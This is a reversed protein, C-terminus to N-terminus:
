DNDEGLEEEMDELLFKLQEGEFHEKINDEQIRFELENDCVFCNSGGFIFAKKEIDYYKYFCQVDSQKGDEECYIDQYTTIRNKMEWYANIKDKETM